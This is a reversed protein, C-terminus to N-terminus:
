NKTKHSLQNFLQALQQARYKRSSAMVLQEPAIHAQGNALQELFLSLADAIKEASTMDAINEFGGNRLVRATEGSPDILGFIPKRTRFYEYIKAPIQTNFPTGQFVLLGDAQSMESLAERYPLAFEIHVIDGIQKQSILGKFYDEDGPARLVIKLRGADLKGLQKLTAIASFFASPDRGETYLLGSHLLVIPQAGADQLPTADPRIDNFGDEDYGNEIVHFKEGAIQPYRRVYTDRASHTTFVAADCGQITHREIWLFAAKQWKRKPYDDQTMPDRFDAVWPRGSLKKLSLGILHATAIPYTTWIVQAKNKRLMSLGLCVASFWWSVWRDPLAIVEPYRGFLGLHRKADLAWARKVEVNKSLQALQSSNKQEYASPSASLVSPAWDQEGLHKSFSLTRQIGSSGAQPPFHFAILLVNKKLNQRDQITDDSMQPPANHIRLNALWSLLRVSFWFPTADWPRSRPFQFFDHHKSAAGFATTFAAFYGADEVMKVHRQDFDMGAKGNPYAFLRLPKGIIEELTRKNEVIEYRASEDSLKALIPHTITHGGIEINQRALALVMDRSLMQQPAKIQGTLMELKEIIKLRGQASLYKCNRDLEAVIKKRDEICSLPWSGLGLEHLDLQGLPLLRVAELIRDNWMNGNDLFDTSVFVTAPLSLRTLVPLALDHCSRYGDDFTICVARPPIRNERLLTIADHLPLVNFCSALTEMQWTFKEIDPESELLPDPRELIRHYTIIALRGEPGFSSISDGLSRILQALLPNLKTHATM